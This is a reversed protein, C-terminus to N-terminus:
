PNAPAPEAPPQPTEEKEEENCTLMVADMDPDIHIKCFKGEYKASPVVELKESEIQNFGEETTIDILDVVTGDGLDSAFRGNKIRDTVEQCPTCDGSHFVKIVKKAM